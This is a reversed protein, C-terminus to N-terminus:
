SNHTIIQTHTKKKKKFLIVLDMIKTQDIEYNTIKRKYRNIVYASILQLIQTCLQWIANGLYYLSSTKFRNIMTPSSDPQPTQLNCHGRHWTSSWFVKVHSQPGFHCCTVFVGPTLSHPSPNPHSKNSIVTWGIM